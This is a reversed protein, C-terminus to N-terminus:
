WAFKEFKRNLYLTADQYLYEKLEYMRQKGCYVLAYTGNATKQVLSGVPLGIVDHIDELFLKTGTFSISVRKKNRYVSHCIGGDGDFYGRVFHHRLEVPINSAIPELTLSKRPKVGYTALDQVIDKSCLELRVQNQVRGNNYGGYVRLKINKGVHKAIEDLISRDREQLSINVYNNVVAGDAALLGLFYAKVETDLQRFFTTDVQQSPSLHSRKVGMQKLLYQVAQPDCNLQKGIKLYSSGSLYLEKIYKALHLVSSKCTPYSTVDGKNKVFTFLCSPAIDFDLAISEYGEGKLRRSTIQEYNAELM